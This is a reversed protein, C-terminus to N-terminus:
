HPQLVGQSVDKRCWRPLMSTPPHHRVHRQVRAEARLISAQPVKPRVLAGAAKLTCGPLAVRRQRWVLPLRGVGGHEEVLPPTGDSKQIGDQLFLSVKVHKDEFFRCLAQKTCVQYMYMCMHGCGPCVGNCCICISCPTTTLQLPRRSALWAVKLM